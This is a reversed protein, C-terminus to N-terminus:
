IFFAQYDIRRLGMWRLRNDNMWTNYQAHDTFFEIVEFRQRNPDDHQALLLRYHRRQGSGAIRWISDFEHKWAGAGKTKLYIVGQDNDHPSPDFHIPLDHDIPRKEHQSVLYLTGSKIKVPDIGNPIPAGVIALWETSM